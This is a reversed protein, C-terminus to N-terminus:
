TIDDIKERVEELNTDQPGAIVACTCPEKFRKLNLM